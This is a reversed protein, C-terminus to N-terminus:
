KKKTRGPIRLAYGENGALRSKFMVKEPFGVKVVM